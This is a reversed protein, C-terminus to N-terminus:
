DRLLRIEAQEFVHCIHKFDAESPFHLVWTLDYSTEVVLNIEPLVFFVILEERLCTTLLRNLAQKSEILNLQFLEIEAVSNGIDHENEDFYFIPSLDFFHSFVDVCSKEYKLYDDEKGSELFQQYFMPRSLAEEESLWHEHISMCINYAPSVDQGLLKEM